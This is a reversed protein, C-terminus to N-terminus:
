WSHDREYGLQILLDGAVRKFAATLEPTFSNRWGGKKGARFTHSKKPDIQNIIERVTAERDVPTPTRAAYFDVMAALKADRGEGVLEEFQVAFVTPNNLWGDFDRFRTAVDPFLYEPAGPPLGVIALMIGEEDSKLARFTKALRHWRNMHRLYHSTSAVVDRPDRYIFYHVVNTAELAAQYRDDYYLHGRVIEGPVFADICGCINESSRPRMQFSSTLSALFTGYNVRGPLGAVIQDLLHTGSKAFSNALVPPVNQYNEATARRRAFAKPARLAFACTKRVVGNRHHLGEVLAHFM